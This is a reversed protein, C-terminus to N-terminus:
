PDDEPPPPPTGTGWGDDGGSVDDLDDDTLEEDQGAYDPLDKVEDRDGLLESSKSSM